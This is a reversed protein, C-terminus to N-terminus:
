PLFGELEELSERQYDKPATFLDPSPDSWQGAIWRLKGGEGDAKRWSMEQPIGSDVPLSLWIALASEPWAERGLLFYFIQSLTKVQQVTAIWLALHDGDSRSAVIEAEEGGESHGSWRSEQGPARVWSFRVLDHFVTARPSTPLTSPTFPVLAPDEQFPDSRLRWGNQRGAKAHAHIAPWDFAWFHADLHELGLFSQLEVNYILSFLNSPQDIRIYPGSRLLFLREQKRDAKWLFELRFGEAAGSHSNGWLFALLLAWLRRRRFSM